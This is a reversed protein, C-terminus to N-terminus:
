PSWYLPTRIIVAENGPKKTDAKRKHQVILYDVLAIILSAAVAVSITVGKEGDTMDIAGAPKFPWPAYLANADHSLFRISDIAFNSAFMTFPFSGFAVIEARRLDKLWQPHTEPKFLQFPSEQAALPIACLLLLTQFFRRM